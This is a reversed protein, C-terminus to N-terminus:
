LNKMRQTKRKNDQIKRKEDRYETSKKNFGEKLIDDMKHLRYTKQTMRTEMLEEM